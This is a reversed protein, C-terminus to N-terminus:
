NYLLIFASFCLLYIKCCKNKFVSVYSFLFLRAVTNLSLWDRRYFREIVTFIFFIVIRSSLCHCKLYFTDPLFILVLYPQEIFVTFIKINVLFVKLKRKKKPPPQMNLSFPFANYGVSTPWIRLNVLTLSFVDNESSSGNNRIISLPM